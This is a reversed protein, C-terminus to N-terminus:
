GGVGPSGSYGGLILGCATYSSISNCSTYVGSCSSHATFCESINYNPTCQYRVCSGGVLRLMESKNLRGEEFIKFKKM